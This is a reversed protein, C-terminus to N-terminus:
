RSWFATSCSTRLSTATAYCSLSDTPSRSARVRRAWASPMPGPPSGRPRTRARPARGPWARTPARRLLVVMRDVQWYACPHLRFSRTAHWSITPDRAASPGCPVQTVPKIQESCLPGFYNLQSPAPLSSIGDNTPVTDKTARPSCEAAYATTCLLAIIVAVVRMTAVRSRVSNPFIPNPSM